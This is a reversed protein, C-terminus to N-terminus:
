DCYVKTVEGSTLAMKKGHKDEIVLRAQSDIGCVRGVIETKERMVKVMQQDLYNHQRYQALFKGSQYNANVEILQKVIEATLKNRDVGRDTITEAINKLSSPFQKVNINLGIGTVYCYSHEQMQYVSECLIGGIKRGFLYIDNVWKLQFPLAPYFEQLANLVAVGVGTTFLGSQQIERPTKHPLVITMYIGANAPSYFARGLKGYGTSQQNAVVLLEKELSGKELVQKAYDQTSTVRSKVVIKGSFNSCFHSIKEESLDNKMVQKM